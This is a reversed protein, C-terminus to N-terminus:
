KLIITQSQLSIFFSSGVTHGVRHTTHVAVSLEGTRRRYRGVYLHHAEETDTVVGHYTAGYSAGYINSSGQVLLRYCVLISVAFGRSEQSDRPKKNPCVTSGRRCEPRAPRPQWFTWCLIPCSQAPPTFVTRFPLSFTHCPRNDTFFYPRYVPTTCNKYFERHNQFSFILSLFYLM